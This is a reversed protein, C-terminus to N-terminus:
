PDLNLTPYFCFYYKQPPDEKPQTRLGIKCKPGCLQCMKRSVGYGIRVRKVERSKKMEVEIIEEFFDGVTSPWIRDSDPEGSM